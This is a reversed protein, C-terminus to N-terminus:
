RSGLAMDDLGRGGGGGMERQVFFGVALLMPASPGDLLPPQPGSPPLLAPPPPAGHVVSDLARVYRGGSLGVRRAVESLAGCLAAVAANGYAVQHQLSAVGEQVAGVRDSVDKLTEDMEGQRELMEGQREDVRGLRSVLDATAAEVQARMSQIGPPPPPLQTSTTAPPSLSTFTLPTGVLSAPCLLPALARCVASTGFGQGEAEEREDGERALSIPPNCESGNVAEQLSGLAGRTVYMLDSLRYGKVFRLYLAAGGGVAIVVGAVTASSAARFLPNSSPLTLSFLLM